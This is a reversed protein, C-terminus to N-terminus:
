LTGRKGSVPGQAARLKAVLGSGDLHGKFCGLSDGERRQPEPQRDLSEGRTNQRYHMIYTRTHTRTYLDGGGWRIYIYSM